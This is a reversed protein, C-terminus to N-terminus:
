HINAIRGHRMKRQRECGPHRPLYLSHNAWEAPGSCGFLEPMYTRDFRVSVLQLFGGPGSFQDSFRLGVTEICEELRGSRLSLGTSRVSRSLKDIADFTVTSRIQSNSQRSPPCIETRLLASCSPLVLLEIVRGLTLALM